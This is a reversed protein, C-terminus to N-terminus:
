FGPPRAPQWRSFSRSGLSRTSTLCIFVQSGIGVVVGGVVAGSIRVLQKQHSSGITSLATLFCTTIATNIGPWFVSSYVIYCLSAALGGKLAFRVHEPNSFADTVFFTAPRNEGPPSPSYESIPKFGGSFADPILSVTREMERLLPIGGPAESDIKSDIPSPVRRSLLDTRIGAVRGGPNDM